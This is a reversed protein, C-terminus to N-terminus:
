DHATQVDTHVVIATKPLKQGFILDCNQWLFGCNEVIKKFRVKLSYKSLEYAKVAESIKFNLLIKIVLTLM